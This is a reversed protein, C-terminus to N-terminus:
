CKLSRSGCLGVGELPIPASMTQKGRQSKRERESEEVDGM